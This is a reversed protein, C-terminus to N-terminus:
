QGLLLAGLLWLASVLLWKLRERAKALHKKVTDPTIGMLDAIERYTFGQQQLSFAQRVRNPLESLTRECREVKEKFLADEGPDPAPDKIEIPPMGSVEEDQWGPAAMAVTRQEAQGTFSQHRRLENKWVNEAIQQLWTDFSAEFRFGAIGRYVRMLTKQAMEEADEKTCGKGQFKRVCIATYEKFLNELNREVHHGAQIERVAREVWLRPPPGLPRTSPPKQRDRM